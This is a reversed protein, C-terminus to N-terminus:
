IFSITHFCNSNWEGLLINESKIRVDETQNNSSYNKIDEWPKNAPTCTVFLHEISEESQQCLRCTNSDCKGM